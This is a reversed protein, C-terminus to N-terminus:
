EGSTQSPLSSSQLPTMSSSGAVSMAHSLWAGPVVHVPPLHVHAVVHPPALQTSVTVSARFQPAQPLTQALAALHSFLWHTHGSPRVAHSPTHTSSATSVWFQPPHPVAHATPAVHTEPTQVQGGPSM